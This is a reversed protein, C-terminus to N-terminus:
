GGAAARIQAPITPAPPIANKPATRQSTKRSGGDAIHGMNTPIPITTM